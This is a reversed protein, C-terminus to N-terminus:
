EPKVPSAQPRLSVKELIKYNIRLRQRLMNESLSRRNLTNLSFTYEWDNVWNNDKAMQILPPNPAASKDTKIRKIASFIVDSPLGLFKKVCCNGVKVEFQNHKNKIICVETIGKQGCLCTAGRSEYVRFLIWEYKAKDWTKNISRQIIESALKHHAMSFEM